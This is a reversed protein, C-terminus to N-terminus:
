SNLIIDFQCNTEDLTDLIKPISYHVLGFKNIDRMPQKTYVKFNGVDGTRDSIVKNGRNTLHVLSERPDGKYEM